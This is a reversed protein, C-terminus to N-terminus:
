LVPAPGGPCMSAVTRQPGGFWGLPDHAVENIAVNFHLHPGTSFGTSGVYGIVEGRSVYEGPRVAFRSQHAYWTTMGAGHAIVTTYGDWANVATQVVVGSAMARIPAGYGAGVDIGAHCSALGTVPNTRPGAYTTIPGPVPWLLGSAGSGGGDGANHAAGGSAGAAQRAAERLRQRKLRREAARRQAAVRRALRRSEAVAREYRGREAAREDRVRAAAASREQALTQLRQAADLAQAELGEIRGVLAEQAAKMEAVREARARLTALGAGLDARDEGLRLLLAAQARASSQLTAIGSALQRPSSSGLVAAWESLSGSQYATRAIRGVMVASADLRAQTADIRRQTRRQGARMADLKAALAADRARAAALTGRVRALQAQAAPIRAETAELAAVADRLRASLDELRQASRRVQAEAQEKRRRTDDIDASVPPGLAAVLAAVIM